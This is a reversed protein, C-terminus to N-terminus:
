AADPICEDTQPLILIEEDTLGQERSFQTFRELREPISYLLVMTSSGTNKSIQTAVLAYENYNTEVVRIDHESGWRPSTYSFRGPQDTKTYLSNRKECRDGQPRAPTAVLETASIDTTCMKMLHKKEKFWNSNSALGISYWRGTIQ